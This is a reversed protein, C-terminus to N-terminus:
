QIAASYLKKAVRTTVELCYASDVDSMKDTNYQSIKEAFDAYQQMMDLYDSLMAYADDSNEYKQMFAIYRDIFAEYSDLFTKLEPTVGDPTNNTSIENRGGGSEATDSVTIGQITKEFDANYDFITNETEFQVIGIIDINPNNVIAVNALGEKGNINFRLKGKIFDLNGITVLSPEVLTETSEDSNAFLDWAASSKSRFIDQPCQVNLPYIYLASLSEESESFEAFYAYDDDYKNWYFPLPISLGSVTCIKNLSVDFNDMEPRKLTGRLIERYQDVSKNETSDSAKIFQERIWGDTQELTFSLASQENITATVPKDNYMWTLTGDKYSWNGAGKDTDMSSYIMYYYESTGDPFLTLASGNRGVYTGSLSDVMSKSNSTQVSTGSSSGCSVLLLTILVAVAAIFKKM